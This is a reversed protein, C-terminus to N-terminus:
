IGAVRRLLGRAHQRLRRCLDNERSCFCALSISAGEFGGDGPDCTCGGDGTDPTVDSVKADGGDGGDKQCGEVLRTRVCTAAPLTGAVQGFFRESGCTYTPIDNFRNGGVIEHTTLDYVFVSGGLGGGRSIVALNCAAYEELRNFQPPAGAPCSNLADDYTPCTGNVGDCFCALSTTSVGGDGRSCACAADTTDAGTDRVDSDSSVGDGADGADADPSGPDHADERDAGPADAKPPAADDRNPPSNDSCGAAFAVLALAMTLLPAVHAVRRNLQIM